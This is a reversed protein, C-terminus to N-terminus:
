RSTEEWECCTEIDLIRPQQNLGSNIYSQILTDAQYKTYCERGALEKYLKEKIKLKAEELSSAVCIATISWFYEDWLYPWWYIKM